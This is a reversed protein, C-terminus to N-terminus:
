RNNRKSRYSNLLLGILALNFVMSTGGYSMFPLPIGMVPMLGIVMGINIIIHYIFIFIAGACLISLFSNESEYATQISSKLLNYYLLIIIFAGIFGFEEAPVSFIFDTWQFPVYRLQTQSGELYGKGSFGGSGVAYKSQIVNYGAGRPDSDPDLFAEIRKKQHSALGDYVQPAVFGASAFISIAIAVYSLKQRFLFLLTSTLALIILFIMQSKLSAIILVPLLFITYLIFSSFGSWFLIGMFMFLLVSASGADPQKLILYTPFAVMLFAIGLDRITKIDTRKSSIFAALGFLTGFKAFEAPQFNFGGLKIWGKSGNIESGIVLVLILALISLGYMPYAFLRLLREPLYMITIMGMFGVGAALVQKMVNGSNASEYTASYISLVGVVILAFVTLFLNLNFKSVKPVFYTNIDAM